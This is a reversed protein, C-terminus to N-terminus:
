FQSQRQMHAQEKPIPSTQQIRGVVVQLRELTCLSEWLVSRQGLGQGSRVLQEVAPERPHCGQVTFFM